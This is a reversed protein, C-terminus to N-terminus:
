EKMPFQNTEQIINAFKLLEEKSISESGMLMVMVLNSRYALQDHEMNEYFVAVTGDDLAVEEPVGSFAPGSEPAGPNVSFMKKVSVKAIREDGDFYEIYIENSLYPNEPYVPNEQDLLLHYKIHTPTLPLDFNNIHFTTNSFAKEKPVEVLFLNHQVSVQNEFQSYLEEPDGSFNYSPNEIMGPPPPTKAGSFDQRPGQFVLVM